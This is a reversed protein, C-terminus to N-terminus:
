TVNNERLAQPECRLLIRITMGLVDPDASWEAIRPAGSWRTCKRPVLAVILRVAPGIRADTNEPVVMYM